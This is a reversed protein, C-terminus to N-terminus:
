EEPAPEDQQRARAVAFPTAVPEYDVLELERMLRVHPPEEKAERSKAMEYSAFKRLNEHGAFDFGAVKGGELRLPHLAGGPELVFWESVLKQEAKVAESAEEKAAAAGTAHIERSLESLPHGKVSVKFSKYYGFPSALVHFGGKRLREELLGFIKQAPGSSALSSSLHAYPYIAVRTAKVQSAVEEINRVAERVTGEPDAEDEKEASIFCVLADEIRGKRKEPPLDEASPLAKERVEYELLDCHLFLVRM